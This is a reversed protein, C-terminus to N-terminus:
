FVGTRVAFIPRHVPGTRIALEKVIQPVFLCLWDVVLVTCNREDLHLKKKLINLYM